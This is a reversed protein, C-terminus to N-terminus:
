IFMQKLAEYTSYQASLTPLLNALPPLLRFLFKINSGPAQWELRLWDILPLSDYQINSYHFCTTEFKPLRCRKYFDAGRTRITESILIMNESFFVKSSSQIEYQVFSLMLRGFASTELDFVLCALFISSTLISPKMNWLGLSKDCTGFGLTQNGWFQLTLM